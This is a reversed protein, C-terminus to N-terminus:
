IAEDKLIKEIVYNYADDRTYCTVLQEQYKESYHHIYNANFRIIHKGGENQLEFIEWDSYKLVSIKRM